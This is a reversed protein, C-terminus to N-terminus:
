RGALAAVPDLRTARRAPLVGFLAGVAVSLALAALVAWVPPSAPLDPYVAVLVRTAVWGLLLGLLGGASSILIAEALFALLIQGRGAGVAKLLGVERTRESVSVLMVNMIGIGAVALSIAAIGALAMTLAGLISSFASLVADQTIATVDEEGHREAILRVVQHDGVRQDEVAVEVQSVVVGVGGIQHSVPAKLRFTVRDGAAVADEPGHVVDAHRRRERGAKTSRIEDSFLDRREQRGTQQPAGFQLRSQHQAM